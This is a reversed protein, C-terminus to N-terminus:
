ETQFVTKCKASWDLQEDRTFQGAGAENSEGDALRESGRGQTRRAANEVFYGINAAVQHLDDELDLFVVRAVGAHNCRESEWPSSSAWPPIQGTQATSRRIEATAAARASGTRDRAVLAQLVGRLFKATM